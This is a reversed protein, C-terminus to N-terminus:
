RQTPRPAESEGRAQRDLQREATYLVERVFYMARQKTRYWCLPLLCLFLVGLAWRLGSPWGAAAGWASSAALVAAAFLTLVLLGRHYAYLGNFLAVRQEAAGQACTMASLFLDRDAANQGVSAQLKARIRAAAGAPLYRDGLGSRLAKESLRGGFTRDVLPELLSGLSQILQGVFLALATLVIVSFAEPYAPAKVSQLAPFCVPVWAVALSGLVLTSLLDYLDLKEAVAGVKGAGAGPEM